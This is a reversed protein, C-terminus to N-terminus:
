RRAYYRASFVWIGISFLIVSVIEFIYPVHYLFGIDLRDSWKETYSLVPAVFLFTSYYLLLGSCVWFFPFTLLNPIKLSQITDYFYLLVWLLMLLSEITTAYLVMRHNHLDNLVPNIHLIDWISFVIFSVIATLIWIKTRKMEIKYYFMGSLMAYRIPIGLNYYVLNNSKLAAYHLMVLDIGLKFILYLFLLLFAPDIYAKRFWILLLPVITIFVSISAIPQRQCFSLYVEFM